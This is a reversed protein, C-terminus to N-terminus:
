FLDSREYYMINLSEMTSGLAALDKMGKDTITHLRISLSKIPYNVKNM